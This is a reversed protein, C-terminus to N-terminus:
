RHVPQPEPRRLVVREHAPATRLQPERLEALAGIVASLLLLAGLQHAMGLATPVTLVLTAVGLAFQLLAAAPVLLVMRRAYQSLGARWARVGVWLALAFTTTALLRHVFQVVGPQEVAALLPSGPGFSAPWPYDGMLPFRNYIFGADLGAVFAGWTATAITLLGVAGALRRVGAREGPTAGPSRAPDGLITLALWLMWAFIAFAALLHLALRYHSVDPRDVLGSAVMLWGIVGQLALLAVVGAIRPIMPRSISGRLLFWLLPVVLALGLLRGWLRHIYEPWYIAKFGALDMGANIKMYEPYRKYDDFAVQWASESTPPLLTQPHWRVISLGSHTLRTYGGLLVMVVVMGCLAALWWGVARSTTVPLRQARGLMPQVEGTLRPSPM